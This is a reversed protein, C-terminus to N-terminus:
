GPMGSRLRFVMEWLRDIEGREIVEIPKLGAFATNPTQLWTSIESAEVVEGLSDCLRQVEVYNRLLKKIPKPNAEIEAITRVSVDVLRAFFERTVGLRDRLELAAVDPKRVLRVGVMGPIPVTQVVPKSRAKAQQKNAKKPTKTTM